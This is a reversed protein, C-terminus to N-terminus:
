LFLGIYNILKRNNEGMYPVQSSLFNYCIHLNNGAKKLIGVDTKVEYAEKYCASVIKSSSLYGIYNGLCTKLLTYKTWRSQKESVVTATFHFNHM